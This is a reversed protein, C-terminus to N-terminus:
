LSTRLRWNTSPRRSGAFKHPVSRNANAQPIITTDFNRHQFGVYFDSSCACYSPRHCACSRADMLIGSPRGLVADSDSMTSVVSARGAWGSLRWCDDATPSLTQKVPSFLYPRMPNCALTFRRNFPESKAMLKMPQNSVSIMKVYADLKKAMQSREDELERVKEHVDDREQMSQRMGEMKTEHASLLKKLDSIERKCKKLQTKDDTVENIKASNRIKKARSAFLITSNTQQYNSAAPSINCVIATKSNGGLANQLMRTLISDRFNIFGNGSGPKMSSLKEIVTSLALLSKNICAGERRATGEAGTLAACESGALDVLNLESQLALSQATDEDTTRAKSEIYVRFITHSRSSDNNMNTATRSAQREGELLVALIQEPTSVAKKEADLIIRGHYDERLKSARRGLLDRINENYIEVMAASIYYEREPTSEIISYIDRAALRVIGPNEETGYMTYTKGGSTQGYCFVTGNYGTMAAQIIRQVVQDYVEPTTCSPEFCRDFSYTSGVQDQGGQNVAVITNEKIQWCDYDGLSNERENM